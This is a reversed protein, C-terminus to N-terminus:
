EGNDLIEKMRGILVPDARYTADVLDNDGAFEPVMFEPYREHFARLIGDVALVARSGEDGTERLVLERFGILNAAFRAQFVPNRHYMREFGRDELTQASLPMPANEHAM